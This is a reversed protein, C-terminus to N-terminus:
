ALLSVWSLTFGRLSPKMLTRYDFLLGKSKAVYGKKTKKGIAVIFTNM